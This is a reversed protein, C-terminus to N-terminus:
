ERRDNASAADPKKEPYKKGDPSDDFLGGGAKSALLSATRQTESLEQQLKQIEKTCQGVTQSLMSARSSAKNAQELAEKKERENEEVRDSLDKLSEANMLKSILPNDPAREAIVHVAALYEERKRAAQLAADVQSQGHGVSYLSAAASTPILALKDLAGSAIRAKYAEVAREINRTTIDDTHNVMLALASSSADLNQFAKVIGFEQIDLLLGIVASYTTRISAAGAGGPIDIAADVTATYSDDFQLKERLARMIPTFDTITQYIASRSRDLTSLVPTQMRDAPASKSVILGRIIGIADAVTAGKPVGKGELLAGPANRVTSIALLIRELTLLIRELTKPHNLSLAILGEPTVAAKLDQGELKAAQISLVDKLSLSFSGLGASSTTEHIELVADPARDAMQRASARSSRIAREIIPDESAAAAATSAYGASSFIAASLFLTFFLKSKM